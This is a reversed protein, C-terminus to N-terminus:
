PPPGTRTADWAEKASLSDVIFDVYASVKPSGHRTSPLLAQLSGVAPLFSHLVSGLTGDLLQHRVM